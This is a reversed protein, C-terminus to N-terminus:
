WINTSNEVCELLKAGFVALWWAPGVSWTGASRGAQDQPAPGWLERGGLAASAARGWQGGSHGPRAKQRVSGEAQHVREGGAHSGGTGEPVPQATSPSM